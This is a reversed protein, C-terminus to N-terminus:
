WATFTQDLESPNISASSTTVNTMLLGMEM